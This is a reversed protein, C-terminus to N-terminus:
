DIRETLARAVYRVNGRIVVRAWDRPHAGLGHYAGRVYGKLRIPKSQPDLAVDGNPRRLKGNRTTAWLTGLRDATGRGKRVNIGDGKQLRVYRVVHKARHPVIAALQASEIVWNPYRRKGKTPDIRYTRNFNPDRITIFGSGDIDLALVTHKGRFPHGAVNLPVRSFDLMLVVPRKGGRIIARLNSVSLKTLYCPVGRRELMTRQQSFFTPGYADAGLRRTRYIGQWHDTFFQGASEVSTPGCNDPASGPDPLPLRSDPDWQLRLPTDAVHRLTM